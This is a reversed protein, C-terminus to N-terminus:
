LYKSFKKRHDESANQPIYATGKDTSVKVMINDGTEKCETMRDLIRRHSIAMRAKLDDDEIPNEGQPIDDGAKMAKFVDFASLGDARCPNFFFTFSPDDAMSERAGQIGPKAFEFGMADLASAVRLMRTFFVGNM